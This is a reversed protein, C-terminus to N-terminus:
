LKLLESMPLISVEDQNYNNLPENDEDEEEIRSPLEANDGQNYFDILEQHTEPQGGGYVNPTEM